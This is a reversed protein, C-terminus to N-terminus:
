YVVYKYKAEYSFNVLLLIQITGVDDKISPLYYVVENTVCTHLKVVYDYSVSLYDPLLPRITLIKAQGQFKQSICATCSSCWFMSFAAQLSSKRKEKENGIRIAVTCLSRLCNCLDSCIFFIIVFAGQVNWNPSGCCVLLM